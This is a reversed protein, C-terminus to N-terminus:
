NEIPISSRQKNGEDKVKKILDIWFSPDDIPSPPKNARTFERSLPSDKVLIAAERVRLNGVKSSCFNFSFWDMASSYRDMAFPGKLKCPQKVQKTNYSSKKGETPLVHLNTEMVPYLDWACALCVDFSQAQGDTCVQELIGRFSTLLEYVTTDQTVRITWKCKIGSPVRSGSTPRKGQISDEVYYPPLYLDFDFEENQILDAEITQIHQLEIQNDQIQLQGSIDTEDDYKSFLDDDDKGSSSTSCPLPQGAILNSTDVVNPFDIDSILDDEILDDHRRSRM